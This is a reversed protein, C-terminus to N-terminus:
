LRGMEMKPRMAICLLLHPRNHTTLAASHDKQRSTVLPFVAFAALGISMFNPSYVVIVVQHRRDNHLVQNFDIFYNRYLTFSKINKVNPKFVGISEGLIPM